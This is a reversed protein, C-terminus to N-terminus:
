KKALIYESGAGIGAWVQFLIKKELLERLDNTATNRSCNNLSQYKSNSHRGYEKIFLIVKIQRSNLEMRFLNDETYM